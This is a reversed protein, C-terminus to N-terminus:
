SNENKINWKFMPRIVGAWNGGFYVGRAGDGVSSDVVQFSLLDKELVHVKNPNYSGIGITVYFRGEALFNGPITCTAYVKGIKRTTKSWNLNIFDNTTFLILGDDNTLRIIATPHLLETNNYYEVIIKIPKTIDCVECVEAKDNLIAARTLKAIDDGPCTKLDNCIYESPSISATSSGYLKTVNFVDGDALLDGKNLFLSRPCLRLIFPINHSVFLVTRGEGAVEGMKGLCKKQFQADGVALVEDV